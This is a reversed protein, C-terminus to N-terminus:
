ILAENAYQHQQRLEDNVFRGSDRMSRIDFRRSGASRKEFTEMAWMEDCAAVKGEV